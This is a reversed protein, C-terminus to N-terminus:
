GAIKPAIKLANAFKAPKRATGFKMLPNEKAFIVWQNKGISRKWRMALIFKAM